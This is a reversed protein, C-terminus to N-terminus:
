VKCILIKREEQNNDYSSGPHLITLINQQQQQQQKIMYVVWLLALSKSLVECLKSSYFNSYWPMTVGLDSSGSYQLDLINFRCLTCAIPGASAVEMIEHRLM